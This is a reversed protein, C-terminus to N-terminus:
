NEDSLPHHKEMSRALQDMDLHTYLETSALSQHGMLQQLVRLDAGSTLLQTAYSHRLAHPNLPKALDCSRGLQRIREYATRTPLPKQGFLYQRPSSKKEKELLMHLKKPLVAKRERNGKGLVRLTKQSLNVDNMRLSCAESVRLGCGYLLYFLWKQQIKISDLPPSDIYSMLCLCEDVSLFRPLSRPPPSLSPLSLPLKVKEESEMWEVFKNLASIKRRRSRLSLEGWHRLTELAKERWHRQTM